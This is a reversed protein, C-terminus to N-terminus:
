DIEKEKEQKDIEEKIKADIIAQQPNKRDGNLLYKKIHLKQENTLKEGTEEEIQRIAKTAQKVAIAVQAEISEKKNQEVIEQIKTEIEKNKKEEKVRFNAQSQTSQEAIMELIKKHEESLVVGGNEQSKRIDGM